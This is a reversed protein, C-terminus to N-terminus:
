SRSSPLTLSSFPTSNSCYKSVFLKSWSLGSPEFELMNTSFESFKQRRTQDAKQDTGRSVLTRFNRIFTKLGACGDLASLLTETSIFRDHLAYDKSPKAEILRTRFREHIKNKSVVYYQTVVAIELLRGLYDNYM